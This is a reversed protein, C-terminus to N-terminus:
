RRAAAAALLARRFPGDVTIAFNYHTTSFSQPKDPSASRYGVYIAFV